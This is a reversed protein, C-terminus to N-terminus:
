PLHSSGRLGSRYLERQKQATQSIDSRGAALALDGARNAAKVADEFRAAAAHAVALLLFEEAAEAQKGQKALCEGL